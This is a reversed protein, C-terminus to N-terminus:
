RCSALEDMLSAESARLRQHGQELQNIRRKLMAVQQLHSQQLAEYARLQEHLQQSHDLSATVHNALRLLLEQTDYAPQLHAPVDPWRGIPEELM